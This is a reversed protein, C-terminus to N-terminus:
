SLTTSNNAQPTPYLLTSYLLAPLTIPPLNSLMLMIWLHIHSFLILTLFNVLPPHCLTYVLARYLPPPNILTLSHTELPRHTSSTGAVMLDPGSASSYGKKIIIENVTEEFNEDSSICESLPYIPNRITSIVLGAVRCASLIVPKHSSKVNALLEHLLPQVGPLVNYTDSLVPYKCELLIQFLLLGSKRKRDGVMGKSFTSGHAGGVMAAESSLLDKIPSLDLQGLVGSPVWLTLLRGIMRANEKYGLELKSEKDRAEIEVEGGGGASTADDDDSLSGVEYAYRLLYSILATADAACRDTPVALDWVDCLTLVVGKLVYHIGEGIMEDLLDRVTCALITPLLARAWRRVIQAVPQNMLLRLLFLRINKSSAEFDSLHKIIQELWTPIKEANWKSSGAVGASSTTEESAAYEEDFLASMRQITRVMAVMCPQRNFDNMELQIVRDDFGRVGSSTEDVVDASEDYPEAEPVTDETWGLDQLDMQSSMLRQSQSLQSSRGRRSSLSQSASMGDDDLDGVQQSYLSHNSLTPFLALSHSHTIINLNHSFPSSLSCEMIHMM